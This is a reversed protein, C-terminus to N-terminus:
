PNQLHFDGTTGVTSARKSMFRKEFKMPLTQFFRLDLGVITPAPEFPAEVGIGAGVELLLRHLIIIAVQRHKVEAIVVAYNAIGLAIDADEIQNVFVGFVFAVTHRQLLKPGVNQHHARPACAQM